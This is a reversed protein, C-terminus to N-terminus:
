PVSIAAHEWRIFNLSARRYHRGVPLGRARTLRIKMGDCYPSM